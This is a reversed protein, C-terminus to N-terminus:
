LKVVFRGRAQGKLLLPLYDPLEDFTIEKEISQLLASSPKYDNAMRDWVKLRIDM